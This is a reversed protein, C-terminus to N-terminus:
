RAASQTDAHSSRDAAKTCPGGAPMTEPEPGAKARFEFGNYRIGMLPAGAKDDRAAYVLGWQFVHPFSAIPGLQQVMFARYREVESEIWENTWEVGERATAHATAIRRRSFREVDAISPSFPTFQTRETRM